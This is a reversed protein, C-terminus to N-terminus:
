KQINNIEQDSFFTSRNKFKETKTLKLYDEDNNVTYNFGSLLDRDLLNRFDYDQNM